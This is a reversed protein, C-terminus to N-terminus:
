DMSGFNRVFNQSQLTLKNDLSHNLAQYNSQGLQFYFQKMLPSIINAGFVEKLKRISGKEILSGIMKNFSVKQQFLGVKIDKEFEEFGFIEFCKKFDCNQCHIHSIKELNERKHFILYKKTM